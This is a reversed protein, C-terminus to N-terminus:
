HIANHCRITTHTARYQLRKHYERGPSRRLKPVWCSYRRRRGGVLRARIARRAGVRGRRRTLYQGIGWEPVLRRGCAFLPQPAHLAWTVRLPPAHGDCTVVLVNIATTSSNVSATSSANISATSRVLPPAHGRCTVLLPPAHRNVHRLLVLDRDRRAKGRRVGRPLPVPQVGTHKDPVIDRTHIVSGSASAQPVAASAIDRRTAVYHPTRYQAQTHHLAATPTNISKIRPLRCTFGAIPRCSAWYQYLTHYSRGIRRSRSARYQCLTHLEAAAELAIFLQAEELYGIAAFDPVSM